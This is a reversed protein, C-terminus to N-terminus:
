DEDGDFASLTNDPEFACHTINNEIAAIWEEMEDEDGAQLVFRKTPTLITFCFPKPYREEIIVDTGDVMNIVGKAKILGDRAYYYMRRGQLRFWRNKWNRVLHGQKAMWGEVYVSYSHTTWSSAITQVDSPTLLTYPGYPSTMNNTSSNNNSTNPHSTGRADKQRLGITQQAQQLATNLLAIVSEHGKEGAWDMPSLGTNDPISPDAGARLLVEAADAHGWRCARLFSTEGEDNVLDLELGINILLRLVGAQGYAAARHLATNGRKTIAEFANPCANLIDQCIAVNGEAAAVLFATRGGADEASTDVGMSLLVQICEKNNESVAYILPTRGDEDSAELAEKTLSRLAEVDNRNILEFPDHM